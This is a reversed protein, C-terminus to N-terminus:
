PYAPPPPLLFRSPRRTHQVNGTYVRRCARERRSFSCSSTDLTLIKDICHLTVQRPCVAPPAGDYTCEARRVASAVSRLASVKPARVHICTYHKATTADSCNPYNWVFSQALCIPNRFAMIRARVHCRYIRISKPKKKWSRVSAFNQM